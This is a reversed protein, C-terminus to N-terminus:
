ESLASDFGHLHHGGCDDDRQVSQQRQESYRASTQDKRTKKIEHGLAPDLATLYIEGRKPYPKAAREENELKQWAEQEVPFGEEAIGLNLKANAL